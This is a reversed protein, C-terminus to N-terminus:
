SIVSGCTAKEYQDFVKAIAEMKPTDYLKQITSEYTSVSTSTNVAREEVPIVTLSATAATGV